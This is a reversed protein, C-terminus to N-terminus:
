IINIVQNMQGEDINVYWLDKPIYFKCNVNSGRLCFYANPRGGIRGRTRAAKLGVLTKERLYACSVSSIMIHASMLAIGHIPHEPYGYGLALLPLHWILWLIGTLVANHCFGLQRLENHIYGRWGIEEGCGAIFSMTFSLLIGMPILFLIPPLSSKDAYNHLMELQEASLIKSEVAPQLSVDWYVGPMLYGLVLALVIILWPIIWSAFMWRNNKLVLGLSEKLPKRWLYRTLVIAIIAPTLASIQMFFVWSADSFSGGTAFFLGVLM